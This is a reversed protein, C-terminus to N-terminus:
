ALQLSRRFLWEITFLLIPILFLWPSDWLYSTQTEITTTSRDPLLEPLVDMDEVEVVHGMSVESIRRLTDHDTEPRKYEDSPDSVNLTMTQASELQGVRPTMTVAGANKPTWTSSYVNGQNSDRYLTLSDIPGGRSDHIDLVLLDGTSDLLQEDTIEIRISVPTDVNPNRHSVDIKFDRSDGTAGDRALSRLIQIWFQEYLREGRGHRWRWFEDTTSYIIKGLGYRMSMLIPLPTSPYTNGNNAEALMTASPKMQRGDVEQFWKFGSWELETDTTTNFSGDFDEIQLIGIKDANRTPNIHNTGTNSQLQFPPNFPILDALVNEKWTAPTWREGGIWILNLDGSAVLDRIMGCQTPSLSSSPVDGIIIVDWQKFEELTSPLRSISRDGEQYFDSDASLLMTSSEITGERLLLNKLYRYEWRPRGEIYLTRLPTQNLEITFEQTDNSEILDPQPQVLRVRWSAIGGARPKGVLTVECRSEDDPFVIPQEDIVSGTDVDELIVSNGFGDPQIGQYEIQINIPINDTTYAQTPKSVRSIAMDGPVDAAGLPISIIPVGNSEIRRLFGPPPPNSSNGDTVLIFASIPRDPNDTDFGLLTSAIDTTRGIPDPLDEEMTIKTATNDFSYWLIERNEKIENWIRTNNVVDGLQDNRTRREQPTFVDEVNMSGTGDLLVIVRDSTYRTNSVEFAPQLLLLFLFVLIATRITTLVIRTAPSSTISRYCWWSLLLISAICIFWVLPGPENTLTLTTTTDPNM